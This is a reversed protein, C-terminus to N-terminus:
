VVVIGEHKAKNEPEVHITVRLDDFAEHLAREIRDCIDHAQTVSMEGPVVLHFDLFTAAGANRTRLDHAEIAGEAHTAIIERMRELQDGPAAEDMLGSVSQKVLKWGSWLVNLAVLSAVIPDLIAIGTVIAIVVGVAVGVSTVVDAFLHKGDAVLAPSSLRRGRTVLVWGWFANIATAVMNVVIGLTPEEIVPPEVLGNYVEWLIAGAAIIILVGEAVASFYEAKTHGYPHNADAPKRAVWVAVIVAAAAGVNVLSEMADSYLGVSGTLFYAVLKIAMVAVGVALSGFAITLTRNM